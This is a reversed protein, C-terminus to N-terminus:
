KIRQSSFSTRVPKSQTSASEGICRLLLPIIPSGTLKPTVRHCLGHVPIEQAPFPFEPPFEFLTVAPQAATLHERDFGSRFRNRFVRAAVDALVHFMAARLVFADPQHAASLPHAPCRRPERKIRRLCSNVPPFSAANTACGCTAKAPTLSYSSRLRTNPLRHAYWKIAWSEPSPVPNKGWRPQHWPPIAMIDRDIQHIYAHCAM